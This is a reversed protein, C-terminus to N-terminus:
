FPWGQRAMQTMIRYFRAKPASTLAARREDLAFHASRHRGLPPDAAKSIAAPFAAPGGARATRSYQAPSRMTPPDAGAIACQPMCRDRELTAM